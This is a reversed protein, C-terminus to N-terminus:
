NVHKDKNLEIAKIQIMYEELANTAKEQRVLFKHYYDFIANLALGCVVGIIFFLLPIFM